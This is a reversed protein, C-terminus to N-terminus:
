LAYFFSNIVFGVVVIAAFSAIISRRTAAAVGAPGGQAHSGFYTASMGVVLGYLISKMLLVGMDVPRIIGEFGALYLGASGNRLLVILLWGGILGAMTGFVSLIPVGVMAGLIRPWYIRVRPDVAMVQHAAIEDRVVRAGIDSCFAAGATATAVVASILPGAERVLSPVLGASAFARLGITGLLSDFNLAFVMGVPMGVIVVPRWAVQLVQSVGDTVDTFRLRGNRLSAFLGGVYLVFNTLGDALVM